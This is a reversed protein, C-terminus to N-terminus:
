SPTVETAEPRVFYGNWMVTIVTMTSPDYPIALEDIVLVRQGPYTLSPYDHGCRDRFARKVRKTPIGMEICRQRAHCSLTVNMVSGEAEPDEYTKYPRPTAKAIHGTQEVGCCLCIGTYTKM